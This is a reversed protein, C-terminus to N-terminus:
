KETIKNISVIGMIKVKNIPNSSDEQPISADFIVNTLKKNPIPPEIKTKTTKPGKTAIGTKAAM